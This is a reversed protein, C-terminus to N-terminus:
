KKWLQWSLLAVAVAVLLATPLRPFKYNTRNNNTVAIQQPPPKTTIENCMRFIEQFSPRVTAEAHLLASILHNLEQAVEPYHQLILGQNIPTGPVYDKLTTMLYLIAGLAYHDVKETYPEGAFIEPAMYLPTGLQSNTVQRTGPFVKAFGFDGLKVHNEEDLFFM